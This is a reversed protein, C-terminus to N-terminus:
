HHWSNLYVHEPNKHWTQPRVLRLEHSKRHNKHVPGSKIKSGVYNM